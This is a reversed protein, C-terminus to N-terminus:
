VTANSLPLSALNNVDGLDRDQSKAGIGMKRQLSAAQQEGGQSPMRWKLFLFNDARLKAKKPLKATYSPPNEFSEM